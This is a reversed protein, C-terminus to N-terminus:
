SGGIKGLPQEQKAWPSNKYREELIRRARDAREPKHVKQWLDALNALAEAHTEPVTFYLVDVHLFALLAEKIRGSDKLATGLANYARANLEVQEPDSKTIVSDVTKIAEEYQKNAIQCRAKGV